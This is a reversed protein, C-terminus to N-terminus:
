MKRPDTGPTAYVSSWITAEDAPPSQEAFRVAEQVQAKIHAELSVIEDEGLAAVLRERAILVADRQKWQEIEDKTRYHGPDSISHGRFRYTEVEILTPIHETRAREVARSIRERVELVDDGKFRDRALAFGAGRETVDPV